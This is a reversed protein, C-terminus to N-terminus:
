TCQGTASGYDRQLSFPQNKKVATAQLTRVKNMGPIFPNKFVPDYDVTVTYLVVDNAGGNGSVGVDADWRNNRNEDTYTEGGDCLGNSNKDNWAEPRKIDAFDYYSVRDLTVKAQPAVTHVIAEVADNSAEIDATELAADRAARSVAGQLVSKLYVMHGLDYIGILMLLFVPAALAFETAAVGREDQDLPHLPAKGQRSFAGRCFRIM